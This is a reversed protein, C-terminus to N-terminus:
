HTTGSHAQLSLPLFWAVKMNLITWIRDSMQFLSFVLRLTAGVKPGGTTLSRFFIARCHATTFFISQLKVSCAGHTM